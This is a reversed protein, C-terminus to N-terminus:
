TVERVTRVVAAADPGLIYTVPEVGFGGTQYVVTAEPADKVRSRIAEALDDHEAPFEVTTHGAASLRSVIAPDYTINLAAGVDAGAQRAALLVSAVYGSVGFEPEGPVEVRGKVAFLRGPVAAVDAVDTADPLCEVLNSGVAPLLAAAGETTELLRLGRRVSAITQERARLPSDPDHLGRGLGAGDLEPVAEGHLTALLDGQRELERVLVEAEVLAEVRTMEGTALGDAVRDVLAQVREDGAVAENVRVEGHVYKSVASQSVGLFAAVEQQTLGRDRLAAALRARYTPLFEEVVVEEVFKM